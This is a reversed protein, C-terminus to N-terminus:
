TSLVREYAAITQSYTKDWHFQRGNAIGSQVVDTRFSSNLLKCLKDAYAEPAQTEAYLAAAGGVEPFSSLNAVVAPCGCAQAELIPLGFGEYDSPYIFAYASAYVDRLQDNSVRGVSEWRGNLLRDLMAREQDNPPSGVVTLTLGALSVAKAAIDFRKYGSRQGVFVVNNSLSRNAGIPIFYTDHDVALPTVVVKDPDIERYTSLLDARTNASICLVADATMCAHRKQASHVAKAPGVRYREYVFDYATVIRKSRRGQPVRYYTSHVIENALTVPLYRGIKSPLFDTHRSVQLKQLAEAYDTMPNPPMGLTVNLGYSSALRKSMEWAYTSIGGVRQLGFIIGDFGIDTM